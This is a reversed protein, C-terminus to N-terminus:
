NIPLGAKQRATVWTDHALIARTEKAWDSRGELLDGLIEQSQKHWAKVGAEIVKDPNAFFAAQLTPNDKIKRSLYEVLCKLSNLDLNNAAAFQEVTTM